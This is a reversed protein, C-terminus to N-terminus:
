KQEPLNRPWVAVRQGATGTISNCSVTLIWALVFGNWLRREGGYPSFFLDWAFSVLVYTLIPGLKGAQSIKGSTLLQVTLWLAYAWFLAGLIGAELWAGFIHSHSPILGTDVLVKSGLLANLSPLDLEAARGHTYIWDKPWSGHGIFPSELIKPLTFYLEVRGALLISATTSEGPKVQSMYKDYADEGFYGNSAAFGYFRIIGVSGIILSLVVVIVKRMPWRNTNRGMGRIGILLLALFTVGAASRADKWFALATAISPLIFAIPYLTAPMSGLVLFSLAAVPASMYFKYMELTVGYVAMSGFPALFWGVLFPLWGGSKGESLIAGLSIVSLLTVVVRSWGRLYDEPASQRYIDSAVLASLYIVGLLVLRRFHKVQM